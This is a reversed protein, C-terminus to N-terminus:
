TSCIGLGHVRTSSLVNIKIIDGEEADDSEFKIIGSAAAGEAVGTPAGDEAVIRFSGTVSQGAAQASGSLTYDASISGTVLFEANWGATMPFTIAGGTTGLVYLKGSDSNTLTLAGDSTVVHKKHGTITGNTLSTGSTQHLGKNADVLIKPM